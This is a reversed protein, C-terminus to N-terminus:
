NCNESFMSTRPQEQGGTTKNEGKAVVNITIFKTANTRHEYFTFSLTRDFYCRYTGTDNYTVNLINLTGDQLDLTNKSGAWEVRGTFREDMVEGSMDAYSYIQLAFIVCGCFM